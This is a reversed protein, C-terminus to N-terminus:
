DAAARVRQARARRTPTSNSPASERGAGSSSVLWVRGGLCLGRQVHATQSQRAFPESGKRPRWDWTPSRVARVGEARRTGRSRRDVHNSASSSVPAREGTLTLKIQPTSLALVAGAGSAFQGGDAHTLQFTTANPSSHYFSAEPQGGGRGVPDVVKKNRGMVRALRVAQYNRGSSGGGGDGRFRGAGIQRAPAPLHMVAM